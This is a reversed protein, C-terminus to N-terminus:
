SIAPAGHSNRRAFWFSRGWWLIFLCPWYSMGFWAYIGPLDGGRLLPPISAVIMGRILMAAFPHANRSSGQLRALIWGYLPALILIGVVGGEAYFSGFLSPSIGITTGKEPDTFGLKTMYDGGGVPKSRWIARPIPRMLIELHEGGWRYPTYRPYAMSVFCFGDLMNADEFKSLRDMASVEVPDNNYDQYALNRLAGAFAFLGLLLAGSVALAFLKPLGRTGSLVIVTSALLWGAFQFRGQPGFTMWFVLGILAWGLLQHSPAPWAGARWMAVLLIGLGVMVFAFLGWYSSIEFAQSYGAMIRGDVYGRIALVAPIILISFVFIRPRLWGLAGEGFLRPLPALAPGFAAAYTVLLLAEGFFIFNLCRQAIEYTIQFERAEAVIVFDALGREVAWYRFGSIFFVLLALVVPIEDNKTLLWIIGFAIFAAQGFIIWNADLM